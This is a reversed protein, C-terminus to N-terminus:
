RDNQLCWFYLTLVIMVYTGRCACMSNRSPIQVYKRAVPGRNDSQQALKSTGRTKTVLDNDAGGDAEKRKRAGKGVNKKQQAAEVSRAPPAVPAASEQQQSLYFVSYM